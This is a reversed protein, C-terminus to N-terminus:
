ASTTASSRGRPPASRATTTSGSTSAPNTGTGQAGWGPGCNQESGWYLYYHNYTRGMATVQSVVAQALPDFNNCATGSFPIPGEVQGTLKVMGYSNEDYYQVLSKDTTKTGFLPGAGQGFILQTGQAVTQNVGGGNVDM